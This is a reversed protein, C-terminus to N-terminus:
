QVEDNHATAPPAQMTVRAHSRDANHVRQIIDLHGVAVHDRRCEDRPGQRRSLKHEGVMRGLNELRVSSGRVDFVTTRGPALPVDVIVTVETRKPRGGVAGTVVEVPDDLVAGDDPETERFEASAGPEVTVVPISRRENRV